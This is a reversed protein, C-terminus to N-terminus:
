PTHSIATQAFRRAPAQILGLARMPANLPSRWGRVIRQSLGLDTKLFKMSAKSIPTQVPADAM